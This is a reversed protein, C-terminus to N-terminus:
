ERILEMSLGEISEVNFHKTKHSLWRLYQTLKAATFTKGRAPLGVVNSEAASIINIDPIGHVSSPQFNEQHARWSAALDFPSVRDAKIWVKYELIEDGSLNFVVM